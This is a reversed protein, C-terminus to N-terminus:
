DGLLLLIVKVCQLFCLIIGGEVLSWIQIRFCEGNLTIELMAVHLGVHGPSHKGVYSMDDM